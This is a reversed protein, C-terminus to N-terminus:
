NYEANTHIEEIVKKVNELEAKVLKYGKRIPPHERIVPKNPIGILKIFWASIDFEGKNIANNWLGPVAHHTNHYGEGPILINWINSNVTYDQSNYTRWSFRYNWEPTHAIVTAWAMGSLVYWAPITYYYALSEIGFLAMFLYFGVFVKNYHKYFFKHDKDTTLDKIIMPNINPQKTYFFWSKLKVWWDGRPSHPDDPHDSHRHHIRHQAAWSITSGLATITGLFILIVKIFRNKPEFTRHAAYKHLTASGAVLYFLWGIALSTLFLKLDWYFVLAYVSTLYISAQYIKVKTDNSLM